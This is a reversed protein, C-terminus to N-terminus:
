GSDECARFRKRNPFTLLAAKDAISHSSLHTLTLRLHPPPSALTLPSRCQNAIDPTLRRLMCGSESLVEQISAQSDAMM